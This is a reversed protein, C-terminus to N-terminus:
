SILLQVGLEYTIAECALPLDKGARHVMDGVLRMSRLTM